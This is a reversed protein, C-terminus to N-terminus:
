SEFYVIFNSFIVEFWQEVEAILFRSLFLMMAFRHSELMCKDFTVSCSLSTTWAFGCFCHGIAHVKLKKWFRWRYRVFIKYTSLYLNSIVNFTFIFCSTYLIILVFCVYSTCHIHSPREPPANFTQPVHSNKKTTHPVYYPALSPFM